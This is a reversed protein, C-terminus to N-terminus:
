FRALGTIAARASVDYNSVGAVRPDGISAVPSAFPLSTCRVAGRNVGCPCIHSTGSMNPYRGVARAGDISAQEVEGRQLARVRM